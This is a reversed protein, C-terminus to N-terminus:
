ILFSLSLKKPKSIGIPNPFEKSKIGVQTEGTKKEQASMKEKPLFPLLFCTNYNM